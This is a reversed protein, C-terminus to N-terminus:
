VGKWLLERGYRRSSALGHVELAKLRNCMAENKCGALDALQRGNLEAKQQRLLALTDSYVVSLEVRGTGGCHGCRRFRKM